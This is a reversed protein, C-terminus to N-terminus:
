TRDRKLQAIEQRLQGIEDRLETIMVNDGGSKQRSLFVFLLIAGAIPIGFLLVGMVIIVILEILGFGM